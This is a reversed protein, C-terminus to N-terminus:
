LHAATGCKHCIGAKCAQEVYPGPIRNAKTEAKCFKWGKAAIDTRQQKAAREIDARVCDCVPPVCLSYLM